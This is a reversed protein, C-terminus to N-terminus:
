VLFLRIKDLHSVRLDLQSKVATLSASIEYHSLKIRRFVHHWLACRELAKSVAQIASFKTSMPRNPDSM